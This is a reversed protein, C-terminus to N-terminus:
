EGEPEGSLFQDLPIWQSNDRVDCTKLSKARCVEFQYVPHIEWVSIRNPTPRVDDHCAHHSGDFFLPGTIRVPNKTRLNVLENWAEPRFHPSMEATVGQCEDEETADKMLEIHIDNEEKARLKCNVLEGSGVNSFHANFLFGVYQVLTGEGIKAGGVSTAIDVVGDRSTKMLKRIDPIKEATSELTTFDDFVIPTFKGHVCFNNKANSELQKDLKNGAGGDETCTSDVTLGETKISEFPLKCDPQFAIATKSTSTKAPAGGGTTRNLAAPLVTALALPLAAAVMAGGSLRRRTPKAIPKKKM